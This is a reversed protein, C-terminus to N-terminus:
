MDKLDWENLFELIFDKMYSERKEAIKKATDTNMLDKLYFLKEYFHNITTSVHNQYEEKGMGMLPRISPDYIPRNRSGGYAFEMIDYGTFLQDEFHKVKYNDDFNM